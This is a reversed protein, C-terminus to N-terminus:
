EINDSQDRSYDEDDGGELEAVTERIAQEQPHPHIAMTIVHLIDVQRTHAPRKNMIQFM